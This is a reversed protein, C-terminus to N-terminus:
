KTAPYKPKILSLFDAMDDDFQGVYSIDGHPQNAGHGRMDPVYVTVGIRQLAQALAHMDSSSGASGHILIAIQQGGAPYRRFSLKAGDRAQYREIAPLGSYDMTAFPNTVSALLKPPKSTGFLLLGAVLLVFLAIMSIGAVVIKM